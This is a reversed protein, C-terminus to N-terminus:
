RVRVVHEDEEDRRVGLGASGRHARSVGEVERLQHLRAAALEANTAKAKELAAVVPASLRRDTEAEDAHARVVPGVSRARDLLTTM